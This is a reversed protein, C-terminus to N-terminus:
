HTQAEDAAKQLLGSFLDCIERAFEADRAEATVTCYPREEDPRIWACGHQGRFFWDEREFEPPLADSLRRM